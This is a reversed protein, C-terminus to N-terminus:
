HLKGFKNVSLENQNQEFRSSNLQLKRNDNGINIKLNGYDSSACTLSYPSSHPIPNNTSRLQCGTQLYERSTSFSLLFEYLMETNKKWCKCMTISMEYISREWTIQKREFLNFSFLSKVHNFLIHIYVSHSTIASELFIEYNINISFFTVSFNEALINIFYLWDFWDIIKNGNKDCRRTFIRSKRRQM